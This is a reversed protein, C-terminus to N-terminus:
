NSGNGCDPPLTTPNNTRKKKDDAARASARISLYDSMSIHMDVQEGATWVDYMSAAGFFAERPFLFLLHLHLFFCFFPMCGACVGSGTMEERQM